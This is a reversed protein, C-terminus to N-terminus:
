EAEIVALVGTDEGFHVTRKPKGRTPARQRLRIYRATEDKKRAVFGHETAWAMARSVNWKSRDFLLSQVRTGSWRREGDSAIEHGARPNRPALAHDIEDEIHRRPMIRDYEM